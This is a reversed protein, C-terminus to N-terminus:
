TPVCAGCRRGGTTARCTRSRASPCRDSRTTGTRRLPGCATCAIALRKHFRLPARVRYRQRFPNIGGQPEQMVSHRQGPHACWECSVRGTGVVAGFAQLRTWFLHDLDDSELESREVWRLEVRGHMCQVLQLWSGPIRGEAHRNGHHRLGSCAPVAAPAGDLAPNLARGLGENHPLRQYRIREDDLWPELVQATDDESGDDVIILEWRTLTQAQLSALARGIFAAQEFTPM